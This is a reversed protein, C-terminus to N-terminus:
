RPPSRRTRSSPSTTSGCCTPARGAAGAREPSRRAWGTASRGAPSRASTARARAASSSRGASSACSASAGRDARPQARGDQRVRHGPRGLDAGRRDRRRRGGRDARRPVGQRRRRRRRLAPRGADDAAHGAHADPRGRLGREACVAPSTPTRACRPSTTSSRPAPARAGGRGGRGELHRHLRRRGRM